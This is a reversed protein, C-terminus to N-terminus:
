GCPFEATLLTGQTGSEVDLRGGVAAVRDALGALGSGERARAGGVGDDAVSVLLTGNRRVARMTVATARAHKIVNTLGECGVFYATTELSRDLREPDADVIVPIPARGALERFAAAIGSDLQPPPLRDTLRRLEEITAALDAVLGDVRDADANAGATGLRGQIARLGIGVTVLRQQAGDHLDRQIRRREEDAAEAIRARSRDLEDVQRNLEVSLRAVQLALRAHEVLHRVRSQRVPDGTDLYQVVAEPVGDREVRVVALGPDLEAPRGRLDAFGGSAPLFLL